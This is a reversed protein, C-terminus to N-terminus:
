TATGPRAPLLRAIEDDNLEVENATKHGGTELLLLEDVENESEDEVGEPDTLKLVQLVIEFQSAAAISCVRLEIWKRLASKPLKWDGAEGEGVVDEQTLEALLGKEGEAM